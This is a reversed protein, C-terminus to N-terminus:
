NTETQVMKMVKFREVLNVDETMIHDQLWIELLHISSILDFDPDLNKFHILQTIKEITEVHQKRHSDFYGAIGEEFTLDEDIEDMMTEEFHFHSKILELFEDIFSKNTTEMKKILTFLQRHQEDIKLHGTEFLTKM